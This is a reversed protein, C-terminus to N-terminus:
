STKPGGAQRESSRIAPSKGKMSNRALGWKTAPVVSSTQASARRGGKAFSARRGARRRTPSRGPGRAGRRGPGAPRPACAPPASRRAARATAGAAGAGRRAEEGDARVEVPHEIPRLGEGGEERAAARWREGIERDREPRRGEEGREGPSPGRGVGPGPGRRRMEDGPGEDPDGEQGEPGYGEEQLEEDADPQRKQGQAGEAERAEPGPHRQGGRSGHAGGGEDRHPDHEAVLGEPEHRGLPHAHGEGQALVQRRPSRRREGGSMPRKAM